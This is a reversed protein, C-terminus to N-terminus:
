AAFADDHHVRERTRALALREEPRDAAHGPLRHAPQHEGVMMGVVGEARDDEAAGAGLDDGMGIARVSALSPPWSASIASQTRTTPRSAIRPNSNASEGSRGTRAAIREPQAAPRDHDGM